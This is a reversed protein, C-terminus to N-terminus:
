PIVGSTANGVVEIGRRTLEEAIQRAALDKSLAVCIQKGQGVRAGQAAFRGEFVITGKPLRLRAAHTCANSWRANIACRVKGELGTPVQQKTVWKGEAYGGKGGDHLRNGDFDQLLKKKQWKQGEFGKADNPSLLENPGEGEELLEAEEETLSGDNARGEGSGAVEFNVDSGNIKAGSSAEVSIDKAYIKLTGSKNIVFKVEGDAVFVLEETKISIKKSATPSAAEAKILMLNQAETKQNKEVVRRLDKEVHLSLGGTLVNCSRDGKVVEKKFRDVKEGAYKRVNTNHDLGVIVSEAAAVDIMYGAGINLAKGLGITEASALSTEQMRGLLVTEFKNGGVIESHDGKVVTTRKQAVNITQNGGIETKDEEVVKLAQNGLVTKKRDKEVTLSENGGVQQQKDNEVEIKEDKQAHVYIFENGKADEFTLENSGSGNPTSRSRLVSKTKEDPLKVPPPHQGNYIAGVIMPRDPNGDLFRVAVEMGVRPLYLAGWGSGAWFQASRIWCSSKDDKKGDRDWHFQVKVRGHKDTHIEEGSPGVVIASHLGRVIPVLTSRAPRWPVEAPVCRFSNRYLGQRPDQRGITEKQEGHHDVAVVLYKRNFADGGPHHEVEFTSGPVLRPCCSEGSATEVWCRREELRIKSLRKGEDPTLYGGVGDYDEYSADAGDAKETTTLDVRPQLCDFDDLTVVGSQLATGRDLGYVFEHDPLAGRDRFPLYKDGPISPHADKNDALVLVHKDESHEVSWFIGEFEMLRAIFDLDSERYQVCYERKAYKGRLSARFDIKWDGLIKKVIDPAPQDQFIRCRKALGLRWLRPVVRARFRRLGGREGLAEIRNVFGHVYRNDLDVSRLTVLADKGLCKSADVDEDRTVLHLNLVFLQSIAETGSLRAITLEGKKYPESAFEFTRPEDM